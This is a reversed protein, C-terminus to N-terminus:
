RPGFERNTDADKNWPQLEAQTRLRSEESMYSSM